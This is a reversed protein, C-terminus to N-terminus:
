RELLSDLLAAGDNGVVEIRVGLTESLTEPTVDDLLRDGERRLMIDPILIRECHIGDLQRLIDGGTVLGAVTITHGFFDNKIARVTVNLQPFRTHATDVLEQLFPAAAEGTALVTPSGKAATADCSALADAFQSRLLAILGVGNELQSMDEYFDEDPIPRGAAIYWEDAPYVVRSGTSALMQGGFREVADLVRIAEEKTFPRLPTLGDRYKTLGVPVVAVSEVAPALVALDHMSRELEDGDNWEPCIVLQCEMRIGADAFRKLLSLTEGAFRNNMMRCRLEPNTTHVSINIPSIHMDIIRQIERESLNTLTVYNGLLFSLRSDDDKFYLSDRMGSPMQDIFCFVCKNKCSQQKDMLYTDFELGIDEYEKKRIHVTRIKGATEVTLTLRPETVYFQYDLVDTIEHGNISLLRDGSLIHKKHAPSKPCVVKITVAM